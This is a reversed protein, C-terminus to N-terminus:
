EIKVPIIPTDKLRKFIKQLNDLNKQKAEPNPDFPKGEEVQEEVQPSIFKESTNKLVSGVSEVKLSIQRSILSLQRFSRDTFYRSQSRVYVLYYVTFPLALVAIIIVFVRLRNLSPSLRKLTDPLAMDKGIM